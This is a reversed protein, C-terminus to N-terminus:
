LALRGRGTVAVVRELLAAVWVRLGLREGSVADPPPQLEVVVVRAGDVAVESESGGVGRHADVLGVEIDASGRPSDVVEVLSDLATQVLRPSSYPLLLLVLAGSIAFLPGTWPQAFQFTIRRCGPLNRGALVKAQGNAM